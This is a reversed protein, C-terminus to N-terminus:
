DDIKEFINIHSDIEVWSNYIKKVFLDYLAIETNRSIRKENIIDKFRVFIDLIIESTGQCEKLMDYIKSVSEGDFKPSAELVVDFFRPRLEQIIGGVFIQNHFATGAMGVSGNSYITMRNSPNITGIGVNGSSSGALSYISTGSSPTFVVGPSSTSSTFLNEM